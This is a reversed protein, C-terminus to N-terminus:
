AMQLSKLHILNLQPLVINSFAPLQLNLILRFFMEWSSKLVQIQTGILKLPQDVEQKNMFKDLKSGEIIDGDKSVSFIRTARLVIDEKDTKITELVESSVKIATGYQTEIPEVNEINVKKGVHQSVDLKPAEVKKMNALDM